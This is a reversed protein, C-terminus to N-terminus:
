ISNEQKKNLGNQFAYIVLNIRDDLYLKGYIASLHHRVTAESIFLKESIKRNSLGLLVAEIIEYERKTLDNTKLLTENKSLGNTALFENILKQSFLTNGESVQKIARILVQATQNMQIIGAVGMKLAEMQDYHGDPEILLVFQTQPSILLLKPIMEIHKVEDNMLCLVVVDPLSRCIKEILESSTGVIDAINIEKEKSFLSKLTAQILAYTALVMVNIQMNWKKGNSTLPDCFLIM